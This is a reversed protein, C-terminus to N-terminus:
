KKPNSINFFILCIILCPIYLILSRNFGIFKSSIGLSLVGVTILTAFTPTIKEKSNNYVKKYIWNSFLFIIIFAGLYEGFVVAINEAMSGFIMTLLFGILFIVILFILSKLIKKLISKM